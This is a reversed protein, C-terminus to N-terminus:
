KQHELDIDVAIMSNREDSQAINVMSSSAFSFDSTTSPIILPNPDDWSIQMRTPCLDKAGSKDASVIVDQSNLYKNTDPDLPTKAFILSIKETGPNDDFKLWTASPFAYDKSATISNNRGTKADPFLVAHAGSTGQKMLIYAYGDSNCIMHIRIEDGSRFRTKNNCSYRKGGRMLEIWYSVKPLNPRSSVQTVVEPPVSASKVKPGSLDPAGALVESQGPLKPKAPIEAPSSVTQDPLPAMAKSIWGLVYEIDDPGFQGYEFILHQSNKSVVFTSDPTALHKWVFFSGSPRILKDNAGQIVLVPVSKIEVAAEKNAKMFHQFAILEDPSFENRGSLDNEWRQRLQENVQKGQEDSITAHKVVHKGVNFRGGFGGALVHFGIKLDEGLGSWRDGSPVSSILGNVLNQNAAAAQLAIAGGMSEGLLFIGARPYRKRIEELTKKVDALSQAFDLKDSGNLYWDGFGRVDIAYVPIGKSDMLKGFDDYTGKHMGLGHICLIVAKPDQHRTGWAITPPSQSVSVYNIKSALPSAAWGTSVFVLQTSLLVVFALATPKKGLAFRCNVNCKVTSSMEM